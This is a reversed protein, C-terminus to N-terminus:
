DRDCNFLRVTTDPTGVSRLTNRILQLAPAHGAHPRHGQLVAARSNVWRLAAAARLYIKHAQHRRVSADVIISFYCKTSPVDSIKWRGRVTSAPGETTRRGSTPFRVNPLRSSAAIEGRSRLTTAPRLWGRQVGRRKTSGTHICYLEALEPLRDHDRLYADRTSPESHM